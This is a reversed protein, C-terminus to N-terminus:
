GAAEDAQPKGLDLLANRSFRTSGGVRFSPVKGDAVLRYMTRLSVKLVEAAEPYTLIEDQEPTQTM